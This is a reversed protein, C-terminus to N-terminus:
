NTECIEISFPFFPVSENTRERKRRQIGDDFRISLSTTCCYCSEPQKYVTRFSYIEIFIGKAIAIFLAGSSYIETQNHTHEMQRQALAYIPHAIPKHIQNVRCSCRFRKNPRHLTCLYQRQRLSGHVSVRWPSGFQIVM